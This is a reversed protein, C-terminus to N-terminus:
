GSVKVAGLRIERIANPGGAPCGGTPWYVYDGVNPGPLAGGPSGYQFGSGKCTLSLRLGSAAVATGSWTNAAPSWAEAVQTVVAPIADSRPAIPHAGAYCGCGRLFYSGCGTFEGRRNSGLTQRNNGCRM